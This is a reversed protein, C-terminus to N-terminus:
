CAGGDSNEFHWIKGPLLDQQMLHGEFFLSLYKIYLISFPAASKESL